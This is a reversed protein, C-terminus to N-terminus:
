TVVCVVKGKTENSELLEHAEQIQEWAVVREVVHSLRGDLLKPLVHEEFFERLRVLYELSRSRLQSGQVQARKTILAAVNFPGATLVGDLLGLMVVRGDRELVDLNTDLYPGGLFDIVLDVGRGDNRAKVEAAWSRKDPHQSIDVAATAGLQEIAFACKEPKRATAFVVPAASATSSCSAPGGSPSPAAVLHAYRSLQIGAVSVASAGAHWLISRTTSPDYKGVFHLAQM